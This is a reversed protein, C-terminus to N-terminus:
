NNLKKALEGNESMEICIDCGGVFEKNIYLQPITPWNSFEKIGSRLDEDSLIDYTQYPVNLNNLIEIVKASFGCMPMDRSGKMFLVVLDKSIANEIFEKIEEKM